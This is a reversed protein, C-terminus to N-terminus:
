VPVAARAWGVQTDPKGPQLYLQVRNGSAGQLNLRRERWNQPHPLVLTCQLWACSDCHAMCLWFGGM